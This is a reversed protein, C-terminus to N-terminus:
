PCSPFKIQGAIRTNWAFSGTAPYYETTYWFSCLDAGDLAMSSYDGWRSFTDTQSGSGQFTLTEADTTGVAEGATQGSLYLSPYDGAAASSRSYGLAIDGYKDRAVSGMWRYEGDDPTNGSQYLALATPSTDAARFEYWRAAVATTSNVSHTVLFHQTTGDDFHALRYMLRDGLTDLLDTVGPQPVCASTLFGAPACLALNFGPVSIPMSGNVGALTASGKGEFSVTFV